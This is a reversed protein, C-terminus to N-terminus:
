ALGSNSRIDAVRSTSGTTTGRGVSSYLGFVTRLLSYLVELDRRTTM